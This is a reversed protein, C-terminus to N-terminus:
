RVTLPNLVAKLEESVACGLMPLTDPTREALLQAFIALDRIDAGQKTSTYGGAYRVTGEVDSIVLLPVAQIHLEDRLQAATVATVRFGGARLRGTLKGDDDILLVSEDVGQPRRSGLLHDVIRQSCRCDAYLVHLMAWGTSSRARTARVVEALAPDEASPAPLAITHRALLVVAVATSGAVWLLLLVAGFARVAGGSRRKPRQKSGNGMCYFCRGRREFM